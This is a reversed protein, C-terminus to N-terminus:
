PLPFLWQMTTPNGAGALRVIGGHQHAVRQAITLGMGSGDSGSVLPVFLMAQLDEPVGPGNDQVEVALASRSRGDPLAVGRKVRTRLTICSAGAQVANIAINLFGQVLMDMDGTLRPVSPDYDRVLDLDPYQARLLQCVRELPRYINLRQHQGGGRRSQLNDVLRALRDVEAVIIKTYEHLGPDVQSELLQAAGRMGGLPNKIEHALSRTFRGLAEQRWREKLSQDYEARGALPMMEIRLRDEGPESGRGPSTTPTFAVDYAQNMHSSSEPSFGQIIIERQAMARRASPLLLEGLPGISELPTGLAPNQGACGIAAENLYRLRLDQDILLVALSLEDLSPPPDAPGSATQEKLASRVTLM